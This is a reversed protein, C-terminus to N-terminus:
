EVIAERLKTVGKLRRAIKPPDAADRDRIRRELRDLRAQERGVIHRREEGHCANLARVFCRHADAARDLGLM